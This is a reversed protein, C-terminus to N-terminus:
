MRISLPHISTNVMNKTKVYNLLKRPPFIDEETNFVPEIEKIDITTGLEMKKKTRHYETPRFVKAYMDRYWQGEKKPDTFNICTNYYRESVKSYKGSVILNYDEVFFEPVKYVLMVFKANKDNEDCEIVDSNLYFHELYLSTISKYRNVEKIRDKNFLMYICESHNRLKCSYYAEIFGSFWDPPILSMPLLYATCLNFKFESM